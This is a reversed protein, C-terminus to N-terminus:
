IKQSPRSNGVSVGVDCTSAQRWELGLLDITLKCIYHATFSETRRLSLFHCSATLDISSDVPSAM